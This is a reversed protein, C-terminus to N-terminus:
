EIGRHKLTRRRAAGRHLLGHGAATSDWSLGGLFGLTRDAIPDPANM